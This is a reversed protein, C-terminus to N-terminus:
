IYKVCNLKKYTHYSFYDVLVYYPKNINPIFLFLIFHLFISMQYYGSTFVGTFSPLYISYYHYFQILLNTKIQLGSFLFLNSLILLGQFCDIIYEGKIGYFAPLSYTYINLINNTIM